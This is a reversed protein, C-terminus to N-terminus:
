ISLQALPHSATRNARMLHPRELAVLNPITCRKHLDAAELNAKVHVRVTHMIIHLPDFRCEFARIRSTCLILNDFSEELTM